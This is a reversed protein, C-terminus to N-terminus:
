ADDPTPLIEALLGEFDRELWTRARDLLVPIPSAPEARRFFAAVAALQGAAEGRTAVTPPPGGAEGEDPAPIEASLSRLRDMSMVFGHTPGFDVTTRAAEAPLLVDLAEVLPRGILQRAQIVLLLAASSPERTALYHEVAGLAAKASARSEPTTADVAPAPAPPAPTETKEPKPAEAKPEPAKLDPRAQAILGLMGDLLDTVPALLTPHLRGAAERLRALDAQLADVQAANGREGLATLIANADVEEEGPRAEVRGQSVLWRRWTVERAGTLPYHHLPQILQAQTTLAELAARRDRTRDPLAPHVADGHAAVLAAMGEVADALGAPQWALAEWRARLSLLRLDRSRKLLADIERREGAIDVDKADYLRDTPRGDQGLTQGTTIYRTPLRGEADYYYDLFDEDDGRELDPGCPAEPDIPETLWELTM